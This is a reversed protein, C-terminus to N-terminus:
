VTDPAEQWGIEIPAPAEGACWRQWMVRLAAELGRAVLEPNCWPSAAWRQRMTARLATLATLDNAKEVAIRVFSPIDDAIWDVLGMRGLIGASNCHARSPGRLTVVPVGMSLAHYTTTGGSYPWADLIIDVRHHLALYDVISLKPEFELRDASIGHRELRSILDNKLEASGVNGLLLRADSVQRLVEAWAALVSEGLKHIQHFSGFTIHGQRIAPLENVPPSERIPAFCVASPLRVFHEVWYREFLGPPANFRDCIAYDMADLGTTNSYGIWCAQVPAARRAFVLLRNNASHGSLDILVDIGDARIRDALADDSLESVNRWQHVCARLQDSFVDEQPHNAYAWLQLLQPNLKQWVPMMFHAVAHVRLDGSVFGVRLPRDLQRENSFNNCVAGQTVLPLEFRKSFDRHAEFCAAPDINEDNTISFLLNSAFAPSEGATALAARYCAQAETLRGLALLALGMNNQATAEVPRIRLSQKYLNLAEHPHGARHKAAGLNTLADTYDPSLKLAEQFYRQAEDLDGQELLIAGLMNLAEPFSPRIGLARQLCVLAEDLRGYKQWANGLDFLMDANEPTLAVAQKLSDLAAKTQGQALLVRGLHYHFTGDSPDFAQCRRYTEEAAALQGSQEQAIGQNLLLAIFHHSNPPATHNSEAARPRTRLGGSLARTSNPRRKNLPKM